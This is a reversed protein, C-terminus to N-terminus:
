NPDRFWCPLEGPEAPPPLLLKVYGSTPERPGHVPSWVTLRWACSFSDRWHTAVLLSAVRSCIPPRGFLSTLIDSFCVRNRPLCEAIRTPIRISAARVLRKSRSWDKPLQGRRCSVLPWSGTLRNPIWGRRRASEVKNHRPDSCPERHRIGKLLVTEAQQRPNLCHALENQQNGSCRHCVHNSQQEQEALGACCCVV